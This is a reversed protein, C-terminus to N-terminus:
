HNRLSFGPLPEYGDGRSGSTSQAMGSHSVSTPPHTHSFPQTPDPLLASLFSSCRTHRLDSGGCAGAKGGGAQLCPLSVAQRTLKAPPSFPGPCCGRPMALLPISHARSGLHPAQELPTIVMKGGGWARCQPLPSLVQLAAKSLALFARSTINLSNTFSPFVRLNLTKHGGRHVCASGEKGDM